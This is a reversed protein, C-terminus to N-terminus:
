NDHAAEYKLQVLESLYSQTSILRCKHERNMGTLFYHQRLNRVASWERDTLAKVFRWEDFGDKADISAIFIEKGNCYPVIEITKKM